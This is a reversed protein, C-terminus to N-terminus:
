GVEREVQDEQDEDITEVEVRWRGNDEPHYNVNARRVTGERSKMGVEHPATLMPPIPDADRPSRM